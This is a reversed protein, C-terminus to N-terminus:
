IIMFAQIILTYSSINQERRRVPWWDLRGAQGNKESDKQLKRPRKMSLIETKSLKM